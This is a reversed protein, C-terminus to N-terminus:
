RGESKDHIYGSDVCPPSHYPNKGCTPCIQLDDAIDGFRYSMARFMASLKNRIWIM